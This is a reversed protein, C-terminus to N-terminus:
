KKQEPDVVTVSTDVLFRKYNSFRHVNRWRQRLTEVEVTAVAPFRYAQTWGPLHVPDYDIEASLSKLGVDSMDKALGIKLKVM